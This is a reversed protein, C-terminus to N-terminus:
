FRIQLGGAYRVITSSVGRRVLGDAQHDGDKLQYLRGAGFLAVHNAIGASIDVGVTLAWVVDSLTEHVAGSTFPPISASSTGDRDTHRQALGGGIVAAGRVRATAPTGVKLVGSFVTDRHESVLSNSGGSVRESQVGSITGALSVEGGVSVRSGVAADVMGIGTIATGSFGPGLYPQDSAGAGQHSQGLAAGITVQADADAGSLSWIAILTATTVIRRVAPYCRRSPRSRLPQVTADVAARRSTKVCLECLM